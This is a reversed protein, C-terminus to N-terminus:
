EDDDSAFEIPKYKRAKKTPNALSMGKIRSAAAKPKNVPLLKGPTTMIAHNQHKINDLEAKLAQIDDEAPSAKRKSRNHSEPNTELARGKGKTKSPSYPQTNLHEPSRRGHTRYGALTQLAAPSDYSTPHLSCKRSQAQLAIEVFVKTAYAAAERPPLEALPVTIPTKAQSGLLLKIPAGAASSWDGISIEGKVFTDALKEVFSDLLFGSVRAGVADRVDKDTWRGCWWRGEDGAHGAHINWSTDDVSSIIVFRASGQYIVQILEDLPTFHSIADSDSSM